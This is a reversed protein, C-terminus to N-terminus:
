TLNERPCIESLSCYDCVHEIRPNILFQSDNKMKLQLDELFLKFKSLEGFDVIEKLVKDRNSLSAFLFVIPKNKKEYALSYIWLQIESFDKCEAKSPIAGDTRKFDILWIKEETEVVVDVRGSFGELLHKIEAEFNVSCEGAEAIVDKLILLGNNANTKLEELTDIYLHTEIQKFNNIIFSDFFNKIIANNSATDQVQSEFLIKVLEHEMIGLEFKEITFRSKSKERNKEVYEQYYKQPCDIYSQLSSVSNKNKIYALQDLDHNKKLFYPSGKIQFDTSQFDVKQCKFNEFLYKVIMSEKDLGEEFCFVCEAEENLVLCDSVKFWLDLFPNRTPTLEMVAKSFDSGFEDATLNPNLSNRDIVIFTKGSNKETALSCEEVSQIRRSAQYNHSILYNRPLNLQVVSNLFMSCKKNLSIEYETLTGIATEFLELMKYEIFKKNKLLEIKCIEIKELVTSDIQEFIWKSIEEFAGEFLNVAIKFEDNGKFFSLGEEITPKDLFAINTQNSDHNGIKSQLEGSKFFHYKIEKEMLSSSTFSSEPMWGLWENKSYKGHIIDPIVIYVDQNSSIDKIFDVQRGSLNKFGWFILSKKEVKNSYLGYVDQEDVFNEIKAAEFFLFVVKRLSPEVLELLNKSVEESLGYSKLESYLKFAKEFLSYHSDNFYKQFIAGLRLTLESKSVFSKGKPIEFSSIWNAITIVNADRGIKFRLSDAYAPSPALFLTDDVNLKKITEFVKSYPIVLLM